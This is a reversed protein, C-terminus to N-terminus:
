TIWRKNEDENENHNCYDYLRMFVFVCNTKQKNKLIHGTIKPHLIYIIKLHCLNLRLHQKANTQNISLKLRTNNIFTNNVFFSHIAYALCSFGSGSQVISHAVIKGFTKILDCSSITPNYAILKQGEANGPTSTNRKCWCFCGSILQYLVTM